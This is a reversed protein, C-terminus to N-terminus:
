SLLYSDKGARKFAEAVELDEVLDCVEIHPCGQYDLSLLSLEM